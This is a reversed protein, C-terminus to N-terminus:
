QMLILLIFVDVYTASAAVDLLRVSNGLMAFKLVLASLEHSARATASKGTQISRPIEGFTQSPNM